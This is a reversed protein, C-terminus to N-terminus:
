KPVITYICFLLHSPRSKSLGFDGNRPKPLGDDVYEYMISKTIKEIATTIDNEDIATTMEASSEVEIMDDEEIWDPDNLPYFDNEKTSLDKMRLTMLTAAALELIVAVNLNNIPMNDVGLGLMIDHNQTRHIEWSKSDNRLKTANSFAKKVTGKTPNRLTQYQAM